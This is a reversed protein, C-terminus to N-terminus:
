KDREIHLTTTSGEQRVGPARNVDDWDTTPAAKRLADFARTEVTLLGARWLALVLREDLSRLDWSTRKTDTIRATIGHEGDHLSDLGELTMYQKVRETLRSDERGAENKSERASMLPSLLGIIEAEGDAAVDAMLAQLREAPTTM